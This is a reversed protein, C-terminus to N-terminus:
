CLLSEARVQLVQASAIIKRLALPAIERSTEPTNECSTGGGMGM